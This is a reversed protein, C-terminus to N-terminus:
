GNSRCRSPTSWHFQIRPQRLTPCLFMYWTEDWTTVLNGGTQRFHSNQTTLASCFTPTTHPYVLPITDKTTNTYSMYIFMYLWTKDWTTVLNGGTQRFHSNQTTLTSGEGASYLHRRHLTDCKPTQHKMKLGGVVSKYMYKSGMCSKTPNRRESDGAEPSVRILWNIPLWDYRRGM